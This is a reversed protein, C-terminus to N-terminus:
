RIKRVIGVKNADKAINLSIKGTMADVFNKNNALEKGFKNLDRVTNVDANGEVVVNVNVVPANETNNYTTYKDVNENFAKMIDMAPKMNRAFEEPIVYEGPNIGIIGSDGNHIVAKGLFGLMDAPIYDDIIGGKSYGAKKLKELMWVNQAATGSYAGSGKLNKWLQARAKSDSAYGNYKMRDVISQSINLSKNGKDSTDKTIGSWISINTGSTSTPQTTTPKVPNNNIPKKAVAKVTVKCSATKGSRHEKVTVTTSGAAVATVVGSDSVKAIKANGSSWEFNAPANEPTVTGKLTYTKGVTLTISSKNLKVSSASVYTVGSGAGKGANSSDDSNNVTDKVITGTKGNTVSVGSNNINTVTEDAKTDQVTGTNYLSSIEESVNKTSDTIQKIKTDLNDLVRNFTDSMVLGHEQIVTDLNGFSSEYSATVQALMGDIVQNQMDTNTRLSELTKDLSKNVDDSLKDYGDSKLEYEHQYKTESLEDEADAIQAKIKALRAKTSADSIGELAAAQSRLINLEKTQSMLKKDYDHYKKKADLAEKYASIDEQLLDNKKKLQEEYLDLMEQKYNAMTKASDLLVNQLEELKENYEEQSYCGNAYQENLNEIQERYNAIKTKTADVSEQLLLINSLGNATFSSDSESIFTDADMLDRLSDYEKVVGDLADQADEFSKWRIDMIANKAEESDAAINMIETDIQALEDAYNQFEESNASYLSMNRIKEERSAYLAAIRNNNTKIQETYDAETVTYNDAALKYSRAADQKDSARNWKDVGWEKLQEKSERIQKKWEELATMSEYFQQNIEFLTAQMERYEKTNTGYKKGYAGLEKKFANYEEQLMGINSKEYAIQQNLLTYYGSGEGISMGRTERYDLKTNILDQSAKTRNTYSDYIDTINELKKAALEMQETYKTEANTRAELAKEYWKTYAEVRSLDDESLQQIDITGNQVQKKLSESLGVQSAVSDAYSMYKKYADQYYKVEKKALSEASSISNNKSALSVKNDAVAKYYDIKSETRSILVEIWDKVNDSIKKILDSLAEGATSIKQAANSLNSAAKQTSKSAKDSLTHTKVGSSPRRNGGSGSDYASIGDTLMGSAYARAHGADKGSFLAKMQKASLIIDGKKLNEMHMGGPIAFLRGNRIIGETGLENVVAQENKDLAVKGNAYAPKMNLVNYATGSSLAPTLTGDSRGLTGLISGSTRVQYVVTGTKTPPTWSYVNWADVSYKAIASKDPAVYDDPISSDKNYTVTAEKDQPQYNQEESSDVHVKVTIGNTQGEVNDTQVPVPKVSVEVEEPDPTVKVTADKVKVEIEEQEPTVKVTTEKSQNVSVSAEATEGNLSELQKRADDVQSTDISLTASLQEDEMSLLEDISTGSDVQAQISMYIHQNQLASIEEDIAQLGETNGSAEVTIREQKLEEIKSQIEDLSMEAANYDLNLSSSIQGNGEKQMEKLKEKAEDTKQTLEDMKSTYSDLGDGGLEVAMGADIMAREFLQIMEPTTGFMDAVEQLKEGTFDFAYKGSEDMKAYEDGLKTNVDDLFDFLGDTVLNNDKDFVFYDLLSHSTGEITKDLKEFDAQADGTRQSASLMLDLYSNLSEDGYWGQELTEKMSEYSKGVNEYSDRENGGSQAKIFNNYASTAADYQASLQQLTSLEAELGSVDAQPNESLLDNIEKQKAAIQELYGQKTTAELQENLLKMADTNLHVGNATNEFLTKADFGELDKYADTVNEIEETTLGTASKSNVFAEKLNGQAKIADEVSTRFDDISSSVEEVTGSPNGSLVGLNILSDVLADTSIGAAEAQQKLYNIPEIDGTNIAIKFDVDSMDLKQIDDVVSQIHKQYGNLFESDSGDSNLASNFENAKIAAMDLQSSVDEFLASYQSLDSGKLLGQVSNNIQNYYDKAKAVEETSGSSAADNYNEVAKAYNNLWESATKGGFDTRDTQLDAKMAQNYLEQYEDLTAKAKNLGDSADQYFGQFLDVNGTEDMAHRVDSMFSNLTENAQSADGEFYVTVRGYSDEEANIGKGEYKKIIEQLRDADEWSSSFSQGLYTRSEKEMEKKATKIGDLNENLFREAQAEALEKLKAIQEDLSGNVLNIGEAQSGYSESLQNQIDLLQSKTDYAEQETLKGSDLATRLETVKDINSQISSNSEEWESGAQKASNVAEQVSKQYANWAGVAATVGVTVLGVPHSSLVGWLGQLGGGLATVQAATNQFLTILHTIAYTAGATGLGTLATKILDTERAFESAATAGELFGEYLEDTITDTALQELSNKLKNTKAELSDLYAGFKEETAGESNAAVSTYKLVRDYNEMLVLFNEQQRQGAFAKAIAAQQVSSYNKWGAAVEDLVTQFNRFEQNSDRLKIGLSNLVIEVDSLDEITGDEGVSSLNGAKIDRMRAFITKYSEGISTMSRQTVEGTTALIALLRDMSIGALDASTATRSMAEALGGASTASVLDISSLKDTIKSVDEVAVGYGNMASTLYETADASNIQGLTSLKVSDAILTNTEEASKGQRLWADASEAVNLTLNGLENGLERYGSIMNKAESRSSGTALQLQVAADDLEKVTEIAKRGADEIKDIGRELLNALTYASFADRVTGGFATFIDQGQQGARNINQVSNLLANGSSQNMQQQIQVTNSSINIPSQALGQQIQNRLGTTNVQVDINLNNIGAVAARIQSEIDSADVRFQVPLDIGSVASQLDSEIDAKDVDIKINVPIDDTSIGQVANRIDTEIESKDLDVKIKVSEGSASSAESLASRIDSIISDKNIKVDIEFETKLEDSASNINARLTDMMRDFMPVIDGYAQEKIDFQQKPTMDDFSLSQATDARAAKLTDFAKVVQDVQNTIDSAFHEPFLTTMEDWISDISVGKTADRVIKGINANSIEKYLDEGMASKLEDSIYIKKDKFYSYFQDYIGMKDQVIKANKSVTEAMADITTIFGNDQDFAFRKGDWSKALEDLMSDMQSKLKSVVNKNNINFGAALQKAMDGTDLKASKLGREISKALDKAQMETSKDLEVGIKIKRDQGLSKLKEEAETTDLDAQVKIKFDDAM